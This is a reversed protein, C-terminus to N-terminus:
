FLKTQNLLEQRQLEEIETRVEQEKTTFFDLNAKHEARTILEQWFNLQAQLEFMGKKQEM